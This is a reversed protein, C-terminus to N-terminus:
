LASVTLIPLTLLLEPIKTLFIKVQRPRGHMVAFHLAPRQRQPLMLNPDIADNALFAAIVHCSNTTDGSTGHNNGDMSAAM